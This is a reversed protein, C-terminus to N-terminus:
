QVPLVVAPLSTVRSAYIHYAGPAVWQSLLVGGADYAGVAFTYDGLPLPESKGQYDSCTFTDHYSNNNADQLDLHVTTAGAASCTAAGGTPSALSWRLGFTGTAPQLDADPLRTVSNPHISYVGPFDLEDVVNDSSDTAQVQASYDSPPLPESTGQYDLCGFHEQYSHAYKNGTDLLFLYIDTAGAVDCTAGSAWHLEFTGPPQAGGSCGATGLGLGIIGSLCLTYTRLM